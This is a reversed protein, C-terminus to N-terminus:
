KQFLFLLTSLNTSNDRPEQILDSVESHFLLTQMGNYFCLIKGCKAARIVIPCMPTPVLPPAGPAHAGGHKM